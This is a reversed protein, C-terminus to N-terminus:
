LDRVRIGNPLSDSKTVEFEPEREREKGGKDDFSLGQNSRIVHGIFVVIGCPPHTMLATKHFAFLKKIKGDREAM